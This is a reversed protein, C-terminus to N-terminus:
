LEKPALRSFVVASAIAVGCTSVIVTLTIAGWHARLLPLEEMIGVSAPVYFVLMNKIVARSFGQMTHYLRPFACLALFLLLAGAVPGPLPIHAATMLADGVAQASVLIALPLMGSFLTQTTNPSQARTVDRPISSM